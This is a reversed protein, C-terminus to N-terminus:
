PQHLPFTADAWAASFVIVVRLPSGASLLKLIWTKIFCGNLPPICWSTVTAIFWHTESRYCTRTWQINVSCHQRCLISLHGTVFLLWDLSVVKFPSLLGRQYFNVWLTHRDLNFTWLSKITCMSLPFFYFM